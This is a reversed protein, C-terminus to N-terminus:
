HKVPLVGNDRTTPDSRTGAWQPLAWLTRHAYVPGSFVPGLPPRAGNYAELYYAQLYYGELYFTKRYLAGKCSTELHSGLDIPHASRRPDM